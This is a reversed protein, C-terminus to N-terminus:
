LHKKLEEVNEEQFERFDKAFKVIKHDLTKEFQKLKKEIDLEGMQIGQILMGAISADSNDKKVEKGVGMKSMMKPIMGMKEPEVKEKKLLKETEKLYREYGKLINHVTEKIKNDKGNLDNLLTTLSSISMDCDKYIQNIVELNENM